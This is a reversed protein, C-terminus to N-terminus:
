DFFFLVDPSTRRDRDRVFNAPWINWSTGFYYRCLYSRFVWSWFMQFTRLLYGFHNNEYKRYKSTIDNKTCSSKWRCRVFLSSYENTSFIKWKSSCLNEQNADIELLIPTQSSGVRLGGIGGEGRLLISEVITLNNRFCISVIMQFIRWQNMGFSLTHKITLPLRQVTLSLLHLKNTQYFIFITFIISQHLRNPYRVFSNIQFSLSSITPICVTSITFIHENPTSSNSLLIVSYTVLDSSPNTM